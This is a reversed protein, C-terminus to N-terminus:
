QPDKTSPAADQRLQLTTRAPLAWMAGTAPDVALMGLIGGLFLNGWYWGDITARLVKVGSWEDGKEGELTYRAPTMYGGSADLDVQFPTRGRHVVGGDVDTIEVEAGDPESAVAVPYVSDSFLTACGTLTVIAGLALGLRLRM